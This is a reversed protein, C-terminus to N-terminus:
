AQKDKIASKIRSEVTPIPNEKLIFDEFGTEKAMKNSSQRARDLKIWAEKISEKHRAEFQAIEEKTYFREMWSVNGDVEKGVIFNPSYKIREVEAEIAEMEPDVPAVARKKARDLDVQAKLVKLVSSMHKNENVRNQYEEKLVGLMDTRNKWLFKIFDLNM